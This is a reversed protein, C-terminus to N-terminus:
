LLDDWKRFVHTTDYLNKSQLYANRCLSNFENKNKLLLELKNGFFEYDEKRGVFGSIGNTVIEDCGDWYTTLPLVGRNMGEILANPMGETTSACIFAFCPLANDWVNNKVGNFVINKDIKNDKILKQLIPMTTGDDDIQLEGYFELVFDPHRKFFSVLSTIIFDQRKQKLFLRGICILRKSEYGGKNLLKDFTQFPNSIVQIKKQLCRPYLSKQFHTQAVISTIKKRKLFLLFKDKMTMQRTMTGRVILKIRKNVCFSCLIGFRYGIAIVHTISEKDILVKLLHIWKKFNKKRSGRLVCNHIKISESLQFFPQCPDFLVAIHVNYGLSDFHNALSAVNKQSGGGGLGNIVFLINNKKM